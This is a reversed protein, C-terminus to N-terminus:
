AMLIALSGLGYFTYEVDAAPDLVAMHFGGGECQLSEAFKRARNRDIEDLADLDALTVLGTFTSLLDAVPIRTNATLGGEDNQMEVLFDLTGERLDHDVGDLIKLLGIAAATPNTGSKRMATIEVFGGDERRRSRVFELMRAPERIERGILQQCLVVLFTNYTSSSSSEITKVYGGDERRLQELTAAVAEPWNPDADEFIDVGASGQLLLAGYLLSVFDIIQAQGHLRSKLYRAAGEAVPGSLEGLLALGRLAFGTYYLDSGGERGSFGGDPNQAKKLYAAHRARLEPSLRTVGETLRATLTELYGPM